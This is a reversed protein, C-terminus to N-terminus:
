RAMAVMEVASITRRTKREDVRRSHVPPASPSRPNVPSKRSYPDNSCASVSSCPRNRTTMAVGPSLPDRLGDHPRNQWDAVIWEDLLEQMQIISWAVDKEVHRGRRDVINGLYSAFYQAFRTDLASFSKEVAGKEFPSGKHTPKFTIGFARCANQFTRGAFVMGHDLVIVEPVIVPRAAAHELREDANLLREFPLVSRSM